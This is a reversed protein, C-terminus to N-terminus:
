SKGKQPPATRAVLAAIGDQASTAIAYAIDGWPGNLLGAPVDNELGVTGVEGGSAKVVHWVIKVHQKGAKPPAVTVEADLYLDASAAADTAVEINGQKLVAAMATTLSDKGDGTAGTVNRIRLRMAVAQTTEPPPAEEGHLLSVVQDASSAALKDIAEDSGAQWDQAAAEFRETRQGIRQGAASRLQWLVVLAAQGRKGQAAQVQRISGSLEYSDVSATKDSAAVDRDRLAKAMAPGLKAATKEPKGEIPAISVSLADRMTLLSAPPPDDAFPHPLPQCAALAGSLAAALWWRRIM